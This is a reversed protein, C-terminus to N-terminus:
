SQLWEQVSAKETNKVVATKMVMDWKSKRRKNLYITYYAFSFVYPVIHYCIDGSIKTQKVIIFM